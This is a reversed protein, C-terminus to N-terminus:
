VHVCCLQMGGVVGVTIVVAEMPIVDPLEVWMGSIEVWLVIGGVNSGMGVASGADDEVAVVLQVGVTGAVGTDVVDILLWWCGM